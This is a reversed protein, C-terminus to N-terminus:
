WRELLVRIEGAGEEPMLPSVKLSTPGVRIYNATGKVDAWPQSVKENLLSNFAAEGPPLDWQMADNTLKLEKGFARLKKGETSSLQPPFAEGKGWVGQFTWQYTEEVPYWRSVLPAVQNPLFAEYGLYYFGRELTNVDPRASKGSVPKFRVQDRIPGMTAVRLLVRDGPGVPFWLRKPGRQQKPEVVQEKPPAAPYLPVPYFTDRRITYDGDKGRTAIQIFFVLNPSKNTFVARTEQLPSAGGDVLEDAAKELHIIAKNYDAIAPILGEHQQRLSPLLFAGKALRLRLQELAGAANKAKARMPADNAALFAKVKQYKKFYRVEDDDTPQYGAKAFTPFKAEYFKADRGTKDLLGLARASSAHLGKDM